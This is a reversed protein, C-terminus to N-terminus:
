AIAMALTDTLRAVTWLAGIASCLMLVLAAILPWTPPELEELALVERMTNETDPLAITDLERKLGDLLTDLRPDTETNHDPM